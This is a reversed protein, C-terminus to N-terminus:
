LESATYLDLLGGPRGTGLLRCPRRPRLAVNGCSVTISIALYIRDDDVQRTAKGRVMFLVNFQIEDSGTKICFDDQHHCHIANAIVEGGGGWPEWEGRGRGGMGGGGM